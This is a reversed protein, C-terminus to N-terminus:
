RLRVSGSAPRALPDVKIVDFYPSLDFDRPTILTPHRMRLLGTYERSPHGLIRRVLPGGVAGRAEEPELPLEPGPEEEVTQIPFRVREFLRAILSSCIVETPQGSGFHLADLRWRSPVVRVPIVYRALDFLNRLDYRWGLAGLAEELMARAHEPRLGHPRCVRVNFDVYKALPSAVVGRPLAEILLHEAERGFHREAWAAREGGRRLLEDGVYLTAHSWSSQTLYRIIASVRQDGEVLIVDAKRVVAKLAVLDNRMTREYAPLPETLYDVMREVLWHRLRAWRDLIAAHM